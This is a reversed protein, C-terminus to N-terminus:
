YLAIIQSEVFELADDLYHCFSDFSTFAPGLYKPNNLSIHAHPLPDDAALIHLHPGQKYKAHPEREGEDPDCHLAIINREMIETISIREIKYITLYARFLYWEDQKVDNPKWIEYYNGRLDDHKTKFRWDRYSIDSPTAGDYVGIIQQNGGPVKKCNLRHAKKILPILLQSIKLVRKSYIYNSAVKLRPV